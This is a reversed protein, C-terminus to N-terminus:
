SMPISRLRRWCSSCSKPKFPPPPAPEPQQAVAAQIVVLNLAIAAAFVRLAFHVIDERLAGDGLTVCDRDTAIKTVIM